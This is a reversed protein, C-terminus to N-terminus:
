GLRCPHNTNTVFRLQAPLCIRTLDYRDLITKRAAQRLHDLQTGQELAQAVKCALAEHDFFDVLLGNKGDEIMEQVPATRSGIVLCGISLAEMLSWSVVFPYTLYIHAASVQMLRTLTPHALKGVFHIRRGDAQAGLEDRFHQKWTTGAPPKSGYSVGDGGVIVVVANPRRRLLTPLARMLIHYGRYPELHRAVFTVVEDGARLTLGSPGLTISAQPDPCFRQTDIGDHIVRIRERSWVPHQSRQFETPSLAADADNLGHLLHTNKLRASPVADATNSSFEPDFGMDGSDSGYFYEAYILLRAGPFVDKVYLAEGWGSHAYVVDPTFGGAALALLAQRVSEGRVLKAYFDSLAHPAGHGLAGANSRPQYYLIPVGQLVTRPEHAPDHQPARACLAVVKHGQQVLAPGLYKFQGPYNQHILLINM